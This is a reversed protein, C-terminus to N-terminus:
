FTVKSRKRGFLTVQDSKVSLHDIVGGAGQALQSSWGPMLNCSVISSQVYFLNCEGIDDVISCKRGTFAHSASCLLQNQWASYGSQFASYPQHAWRSLSEHGIPCSLQERKDPAKGPSGHLFIFWTQWAWTQNQGDVTHTLLFDKMVNLM